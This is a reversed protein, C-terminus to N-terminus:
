LFWKLLRDTIKKRQTIYKLERGAPEENMEGGRRGM